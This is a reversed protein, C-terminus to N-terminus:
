FDVHVGLQQSAALGRASPPRAALQGRDSYVETRAGSTVLLYIGPGIMAAGVGATVAGGTALGTSDALSGFLGLFGGIFMLGGGSATLSIGTAAIGAQRDRAIVQVHGEGVYGRLDPAELETYPPGSETRLEYAEGPSLWRECPTRCVFKDDRRLEWAVDSDGAEFSVQMTGPGRRRSVRPLPELFAQLPASCGLNPEDATAKACSAFDGAERMVAESSSTSTQAGVTEGGISASARIQDGSQLKFSGISIGTLLHTAQACEGHDPVDAVASGALRYQGSVATRVRLHGTRSLEGELGVAGLPLKAFLEDENRIDITDTSLTTQQWVYTGRLQCGLIPRMHCGTYEVAVGGDRLRAQLSAKEAASWETIIPSERLAAERCRAESASPSPAKARPALSQAGCGCTLILAVWWRSSTRFRNRKM